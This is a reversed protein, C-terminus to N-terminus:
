VVRRRRRRVDQGTTDLPAAARQFLDFLLEVREREFNFRARRYLRDVARDLQDHARRLAPPMNDADYLDDLTTGAFSARTDLVAQALQEITRQQRDDMDPWPFSNYVAPAYSYRSELRGAVTRMWAMHMASTLIGFYHLPAGPIIMLKNSAIVSPPLMAMPIYERTESSVEPVALYDVDPQRDQTFLTPYRAFAKVSPTPSQLRGNRVRELREQIPQSARLEAPDADKLWLCWRWEGSILEEGGVYPKLWKRANPDRHLLEARNEEDLILNSTTIYGGEPRRLRAGDTPQSGKHMQLRAAPPRSRAPVSYQPGEILYGNIRSVPSVHPDGRVHHYEYITKPRAADWTLGIIVCHVAAKGRAESNWQFTRHAFLISMGTSFMYPWLIGSQEGQTISNTSVFAVDIRRNAATYEAAKKFWCTVYDLRNVQGDNGWVRHMDRQQAPTRYQHGRFPPNGFLYSCDASPLVSNWDVELANDFHIHPSRRLPIRAYSQGFEFSLMNNMIHDMMWMATEAIRAPFEGIEIGYFQDVNIRSLEAVDLQGSFQGHVDREYEILERILEIELLRLERYAIILFNGCGCAPDFFRLRGLREHFRQLEARRRNDRRAKLREFEARLSDMFLPQIVKLINTENTYHAGQERREERNMVSQFLSGFIAPSIQSWDFRCTDLLKERMDADFSPLRLNERFLDGNVYPFQQLDEDLTTARQDVPTDLTQFLLSLWGGLDSADDRTRTEVLDEFIGRTEFIGTDDAFLCFVIRVLFRELDHGVYRSDELADHLKGVLESAEINVPDQDKFTRKQVGTIFGLKDVHRPLDALDFKLEEGDELDYLEFTQFDSLLLYRPLEDDKLGPFYDLAQTKARRLDRGVSKQEVLLMGKWFLDIYGRRDGLNRVPEEFSAVRRVPVGFVDFFDRYFLQTQGKEYGEGQWERAFEAARARIENWSLRM